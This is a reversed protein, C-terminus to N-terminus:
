STTLPRTPDSTWANMSGDYVAADDRGVAALAFAAATAAIGGGCYTVPRVSDDLAGVADFIARLAPVDKLKGREDVLEGFPVNVSGPIHGAAFTDRDLANILLVTSDDVDTVVEDTTEIREQRRTATFEAPPYTSEGRDVSFGADVWAQLGGDLVAVNDFGELGFQWWLRTAWIGNESDYVVVRSDDGVGAAGVAAAFQESSAVAFPADGDPDTLATLQDVFVAGPIHGALYSAQGSEIQPAGDGFRLHVTADVVRLKPDDGLDRLDAATILHPTGM